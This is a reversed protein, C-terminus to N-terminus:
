LKLRHKKWTYKAWNYAQQNLTLVKLFIWPSSQLSRSTKKNWNVPNPSNSLSIHCWGSYTSKGEKFLCQNRRYIDAGITESSFHFLPMDESNIAKMSRRHCPWRSRRQTSGRWGTLAHGAAVAAGSWSVRRDGDLLNPPLLCWNLSSGSARGPFCVSTLLRNLRSVM